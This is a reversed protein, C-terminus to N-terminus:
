RLRKQMTLHCLWQNLLHNSINQPTVIEDCKIFWYWCNVISFTKPWNIWSLSQSAKYYNKHIVSFVLIIVIFPHLFDASFFFLFWIPVSSWGLSWNIRLSSKLQAAKESQFTILALFGPKVQPLECQGTESHLNDEGTHPCSSNGFIESM